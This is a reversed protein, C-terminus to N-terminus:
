YLAILLFHCPHSKFGRRSICILFGLEPLSESSDCVKSRETVKGDPLSRETYGCLDRQSQRLAASMNECKINECKLEDAPKNTLKRTGTARLFSYNSVQEQENSTWREDCSTVVSLQTPTVIPCTISAIPLWCVVETVAFSLRGIDTTEDSAHLM